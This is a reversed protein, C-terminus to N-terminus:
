SGFLRSWFTRRETPEPAPSEETRETDQKTKVNDAVSVADSVPRKFAIGIIKGDERNLEVFDAEELARLILTTLHRLSEAERRLEQSSRQAYGHTILWGAVVGM